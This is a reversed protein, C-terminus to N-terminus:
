QGFVNNRLSDIYNGLRVKLQTEGPSFDEELCLPPRPLNALIKACAHICIHTKQAQGGWSVRKVDKFENKQRQLM